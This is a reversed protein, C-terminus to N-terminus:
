PSPPAVNMCALLNTLAQDMIDLLRRLQFANIQNGPLSLYDFAAQVAQRFAIVEQSRRMAFRPNNRILEEVQDLIDQVHGHDRDIVESSIALVTDTGLTTLATRFM